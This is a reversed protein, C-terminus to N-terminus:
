DRCPTRPDRLLLDGTLKEAEFLPKGRGNLPRLIQCEDCIIIPVRLRDLASHLAQERRQAPPDSM